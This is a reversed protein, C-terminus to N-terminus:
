EYGKDKFLYQIRDSYALGFELCKQIVFPRTENLKKLTDGSPMLCINANPHKKKFRLMKAIDESNSIVFKVQHKFNSIIQVLSTDKSVLKLFKQRQKETIVIETDFMKYTGVEAVQNKSKPSVSVFDVLGKPIKNTGNTELMKFYNGVKDIESIVKRLYGINLTPEGGTILVTKIERNRLLYNRLESFSIKNKGERPYFSSLPTDCLSDGFSCRLNCGNFRILIVPTGTYMGEGQITKYIEYIM